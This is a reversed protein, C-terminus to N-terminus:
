DHKHVNIHMVTDDFVDLMDVGPLRDVFHRTFDNAVEKTVNRKGMLLKAEAALAKGGDENKIEEKTFDDCALIMHIDEISIQEPLTQIKQKSSWAMKQYFRYERV